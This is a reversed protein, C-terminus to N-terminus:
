LHNASQPFSPWLGRSHRYHTALRENVVAYDSHLFDMVSLNHKLVEEFCAVPEELMAGRLPDDAAVHTVSNIRELGM